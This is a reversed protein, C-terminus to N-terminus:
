NLGRPLGFNIKYKEAVKRLDAKPSRIDLCVKCSVDKWKWKTVDESNWCGSSPWNARYAIKCLPIYLQDPGIKMSKHAVKPDFWDPNKM